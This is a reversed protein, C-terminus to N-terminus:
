IKLFPRCPASVQQQRAVQERLKSAQKRIAEMPRRRDLPDPRHSVSNPHSYLPPRHSIQILSSSPLLSPTLTLSGREPTREREGKTTTTTKKKKKSALRSLHGYPPPYQTLDSAARTGTNVQVSYKAHIHLITSSNRCRSVTRHM